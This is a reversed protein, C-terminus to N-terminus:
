GRSYWVLPNRIDAYLTALLCHPPANGTWFYVRCALLGVDIDQYQSPLIPLPGSPTPTDGHSQISRVTLGRQRAGYGYDVEGDEDEDLLANSYVHGLEAHKWRRMKVFIYVGIILVLVASVGITVWVWLHSIDNAVPAPRPNCEQTVNVIGQPLPLNRRIYRAGMVTGDYGGCTSTAFGVRHQEQDFVTVYHTMVAMGLTVGAVGNQTVIAFAYDNLKEGVQMLRLYNWPPVELEFSLTPNDAHPLSIYISPLWNTSALRIELKANFFDDKDKGDLRFYVNLQEVLAAHVALPVIMDTTGSDVISYLPNNYDSCSINITVNEVRMSLVRVSYYNRGTEPVGTYAFVDKEPVSSNATQRLTQDTAVAGVTLRSGGLDELQPLACLQLTLLSPVNAETKLRQLLPVIPDKHPEALSPYALGLIGSYLSGPEFFSTSKVMAGFEVPWGQESAQAFRFVDTVRDATFSAVAYRVSFSTGSADSSTSKDMSYTDPSGDNVMASVALNSSGTDVVVLMSQPPTGLTVNVSYALAPRGIVPLAELSTARRQRQPSPLLQAQREYHRNLSHNRSLHQLSPALLNLSLSSLPLTPKPRDSPVVHPDVFWACAVVLAAIHYQM